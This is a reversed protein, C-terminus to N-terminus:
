NLKPHGYYSIKIGRYTELERRKHELWLSGSFVNEGSLGKFWEEDEGYVVCKNSVWM